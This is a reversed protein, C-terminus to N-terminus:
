NPPFGANQILCRLAVDMPVNTGNYLDHLIEHSIVTANNWWFREIAIFREIERGDDARVEESWFGTVEKISGDSSEYLITTATWWELADFDGEIDTCEEMLHYILEHIQTPQRKTASPFFRYRGGPEQGVLPSALLLGFIMLASITKM